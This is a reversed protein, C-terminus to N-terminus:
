EGNGKIIDILADKVGNINLRKQEKTIMNRLICEGKEMEDQGIIIVWQADIKDAYKMQAKLSRQMTDCQVSFGSLRLDYALSFAFKGAQEGLSAIYLDTRKKEEAEKNEMLLLLREMGMGFGVGATSDGGLMKALGDYRGGGCVTAQAGLGDKAVFEFATNTYYDLGRVIASNEIYEIGAADLYEKLSEYHSKCKDCLNDLMRPALKIADTGADKKCDLVRMPNKKMRERCDGCLQDEYKKLHETLMEYYRKRCEPCGVSNIELSINDINLEKFLSAAISIVEADQVATESGIAEVGFQHFQRQRGKQPNECRYCRTIYFLKVPQANSSMGNEIYARVVPSTGEPKLTFSEKDRHTFTYMEKQVIDTTDGVGRVFLGTQEFEPTRIESYGFRQCIGRIKNELRVWKESEPPLIDKTGKPAKFKYM